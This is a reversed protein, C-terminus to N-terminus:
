DAHDMLGQPFGLGDAMEDFCRIVMDEEASHFLWYAQEDTLELAEQAINHVPRVSKWNDKSADGNIDIAYGLLHGVWGAACLTAGCEKPDDDPEIDDSAWFGLNLQKRNNATMHPLAM